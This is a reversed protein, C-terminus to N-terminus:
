YEWEQGIRKERERESYDNGGLLNNFFFVVTSLKILLILSFIRGQKSSEDDSDLNLVAVPIPAPGRKQARRRKSFCGM